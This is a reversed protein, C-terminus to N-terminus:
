NRAWSTMDPWPLLGRATLVVTKSERAIREDARRLEGEPDAFGLDAFVNGSSIEAEVPRASSALRRPLMAALGLAGAILLAPAFKRM